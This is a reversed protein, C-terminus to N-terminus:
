SLCFSTPQHLFLLLLLLLVLEGGPLATQAHRFSASGIHEPDAARLAVTIRFSPLSHLLCGKELLALRRGKFWHSGISDDGRSGYILQYRQMGSWVCESRRRWCCRRRDPLEQHPPWDLCPLSLSLSAWKPMPQGPHCRCGSASPRPMFLFLECFFYTRPYMTRAYIGSYTHIYIHLYTCSGVQFYQGATSIVM